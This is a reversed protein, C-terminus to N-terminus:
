TFEEVKVLRRGKITVEAHCDHINVVIVNTKSKSIRTNYESSLTRKKNSNEIDTLKFTRVSCQEPSFFM